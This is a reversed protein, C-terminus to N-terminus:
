WFRLPFPSTFRRGRVELLGQDVLARSLAMRMVSNQEKRTLVLGPLFGQELRAEALRKQVVASFATRDEKTIRSRRTWRQEPSLLVPGDQRVFDNAQVVGGELDDSTWHVPRDHRAAGWFVRSKLTGIGAEVAGNYRPCEPPSLLLFVGLEQLLACIAEADFENDSKLVLPTGYLFFLLRLVQIVTQAERDPTPMVLLFRGSALDRVVLVYKWLGDIPTPPYFFDMAWVTGPRSWRLTKLCARNAARYERKLNRRLEELATPSETPFLSRLVELSLPPGILAYLAGITIRTELSLQQLQPGRPEAALRDEQWRRRWLHLTNPKVELASAAQGVSLGHQRVWRTFALARRRVMRETTREPAQGSSELRSTSRSGPKMHNATWFSQLFATHRASRRTQSAALAPLETKKELRRPKLVQPMVLALEERINAAELLIKQELLQRKLEAVEEEAPLPPPTPPRGSPRPELLQVANRIWQNRLEHFRTENVGLAECAKPITCKGALTDLILELRQKAAESGPLSKVL